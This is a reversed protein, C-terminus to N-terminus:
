YEHDVIHSILWMNIVHRKTKIAIVTSREDTRLHAIIRRAIDAFLCYMWVAYRNPRRASTIVCVSHPQIPSTWIYTLSFTVPLTDNAKLMPQTECRYNHRTQNLQFKLVSINAIRRINARFTSRTWKVRWTVVFLSGLLRSSWLADGNSPMRIKSKVRTPIIM